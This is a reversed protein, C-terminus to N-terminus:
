PTPGWCTSTTASSSSTARRTPGTSRARLTPSSSRAPVSTENGRAAIIVEAVLGEDDLRGIAFVENGGADRIAERLARLADGGIRQSAKM